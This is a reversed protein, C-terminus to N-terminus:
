EAAPETDSGVARRLYRRVCAWGFCALLAWAFEGQSRLRSPAYAVVQSTVLVYVPLALLFALCWRRQLLGPSRLLSNRRLLVGYAVLTGMNILAFGLAGLVGAVITGPALKWGQRLMALPGHNTLQARWGISPDQMKIREGAGFGLLDVYLRGIGSDMVMVLTNKLYLNAFGGPYKRVYHLYEGLTLRTPLLDPARGDAPAAGESSLVKATSQSLNLGLDQTSEGPGFKGVHAFMFACWLVFPALGSLAFLGSKWAPARERDLFAALAAAVLPLLILAPRVLAGIGMALGSLLWVRTRAPPELARVLGATGFIVMPNSIAETLLQHPFALSQPLLGYLLGGAIALNKSLFARWSIYTVCLAAGIALLVQFVIVAPPGGIWYFAAHIAYDGISGQKVLCGVFATYGDGADILNRIAHFRQSARDARLFGDGAGIDLVFLAFQLIAVTSGVIWYPSAVTRARAMHM